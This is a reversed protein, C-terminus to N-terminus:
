VRWNFVSNLSRLGYPLSNENEKKHRSSPYWLPALPTVNRNENPYSAGQLKILPVKSIVKMRFVSTM